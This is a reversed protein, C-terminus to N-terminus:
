GNTGGPKVDFAIRWADLLAARVGQGDNTQVLMAWCEGDNSTGFGLELLGADHLYERLLTM